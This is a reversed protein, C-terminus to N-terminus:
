VRPSARFMTGVGGVGVELEAKRSETEEKAGPHMRGEASLHLTYNSETDQQLSAWFGPSLAPVPAERTLVWPM